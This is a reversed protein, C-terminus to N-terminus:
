VGWITNFRISIDAIRYDQLSLIEGLTIIDCLALFYLITIYEQFYKIINIQNASIRNFLLKRSFKQLIERFEPSM